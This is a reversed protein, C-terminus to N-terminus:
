SHIDRVFSFGWATYDDNGDITALPNTGYLKIKICYEEGECFNFFTAYSLLTETQGSAIPKEDLIFWYDDPDGRKFLALEIKTVNSISKIKVQGDSSYIGDYPIVFNDTDTDYNSDIDWLVQAATIVTFDNGSIAQDTGANPGKDAALSSFMNQTFVAIFTNKTLLDDGSYIEIKEDDFAQLVADNTAYAASMSKELTLTENPSICLDHLYLIEDSINKIKWPQM